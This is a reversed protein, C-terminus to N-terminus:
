ESFKSITVIYNFINSFIIIGILILLYVLLDSFLYNGEKVLDIADGIAIPEYVWLINGIVMLVLVFLYQKKYPIGYQFLRKIIDKDKMTHLRKDIDERM